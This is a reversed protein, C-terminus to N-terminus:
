HKVLKYTSSNGKSNSIQFLYTSASWQSVNVITRNTSLALQQVLSGDLAYISATLDQASEPRQIVVEHLTPNPFLSVSLNQLAEDIQVAFFEYPQQVGENVSATSNTANGIAIQGISYAVSGSASTADGGATLTATQSHCMTAALLWFSFLIKKM